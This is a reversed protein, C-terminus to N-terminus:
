KNRWINDTTVKINLPVTPFRCNYIYDYLKYLGTYKSVLEKHVFWPSLEVVCVESVASKSGRSARYLKNAKHWYIAKCLFGWESLFVTQPHFAPWQYHMQRAHVSDQRWRWCQSPFPPPFPSPFSPPFSPPAFLLWNGRRKLIRASSAWRSREASVISGWNRWWHNFNRKYRDLLWKVKHQTHGKLMGISLKRSTIM